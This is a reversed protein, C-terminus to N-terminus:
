AQRSSMSRAPRRCTGRSYAIRAAPLTAILAPDNFAHWEFAFRPELAGARFVRVADHRGAQLSASARHLAPDCSSGPDPFASREMRSPSRAVWWQAAAISDM